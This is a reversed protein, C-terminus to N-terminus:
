KVNAEHNTRFIDNLDNFQYYVIEESDKSIVIRISGSFYTNFSFKGKYEDEKVVLQATTETMAPVRVTSEVNWTMEEEISKHRENELSYETKFGAGLEVIDGPLAIEMSFESEMLFGELVTLSCTSVTKREAKVQYEQELETDNVYKSKFLMHTKPGLNMNTREYTADESQIIFKSWDIDCQLDKWNYRNRGRETAKYWAKAYNMVIDHIDLVHSNVDIPSSTKLKTPRYLRSLAEDLRNRGFVMNITNDLLIPTYGYYKFSNSANNFIKGNEVNRRINEINEGDIKSKFEEMEISSPVYENSKMSIPINGDSKNWEQFETEKFESGNLVLRSTNFKIQNEIIENEKDISRKDNIIEDLEDAIGDLSDDKLIESEAIERNTEEDKGDLHNENTSTEDNGNGEEKKTSSEVVNENHNNATSRSTISATTDDTANNNNDTQGSSLCLILSFITIFLVQRLM